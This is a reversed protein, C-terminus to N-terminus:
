AAALLNVAAWAAEVVVASLEGNLFKEEVRRRALFKKLGIGGFDM